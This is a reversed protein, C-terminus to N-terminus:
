KERMKLYKWKRGEWNLSNCLLFIHFNDRLPWIFAEKLDDVSYKVLSINLKHFLRNFWLKNKDKVRIESINQVEIECIRPNWNKIRGLTLIESFDIRKRERYPLESLLFESTYWLDSFIWVTVKLQFICRRFKIVGWEMCKEKTAERFYDLENGSWIKRINIWFYIKKGEIIEWEIKKKM